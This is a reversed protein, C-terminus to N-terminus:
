KISKRISLRRISGEAYTKNNETYDKDWLEIVFVFIDKKWIYDKSGSLVSDDIREPAGLVSYIDKKNMSVNLGYAITSKSMTWNQYHYEGIFYLEAVQDFEDYKISMGADPFWEISAPSESDATGLLQRVDKKTDGLKIPYSWPDAQRCGFLFLALLISLTIKM